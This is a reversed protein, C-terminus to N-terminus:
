SYNASLSGTIIGYLTIFQRNVVMYPIVMPDSGALNESALYLEINFKKLALFVEGKTKNFRPAM